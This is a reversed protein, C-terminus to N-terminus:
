ITDVIFKTCASYCHMSVNLQKDTFALAQQTGSIAHFTTELARREGPSLLQGYRELHAQKSGGGGM